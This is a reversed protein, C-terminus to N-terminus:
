LSFAILGAIVAAVIGVVMVKGTMEDKEYPELVPVFGGVGAEGSVVSKEAERVWQLVEEAHMANHDEATRMNAESLGPLSGYTRVRAELARAKQVMADINSGQEPTLYSRTAGSKLGAAIRGLMQADSLILTRLEGVSLGESTQITSAAGSDQALVAPSLLEVEIGVLELQAALQAVAMDVHERVGSLSSSNMGGESMAGSGMRHRLVVPVFFPPPAGLAITRM